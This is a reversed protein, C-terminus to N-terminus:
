MFLRLWKHNISLMHRSMELGIIVPTPSTQPSQPPNHNETHSSSARPPTRPIDSRHGDCNPQIWGEDRSAPWDSGWDDDDAEGHWSNWGKHDWDSSGTWKDADKYMDESGNWVTETDTRQHRDGAANDAAHWQHSDSHSAAHVPTIMQKCGYLM